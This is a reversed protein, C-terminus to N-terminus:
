NVHFHIETCPGYYRRCDSYNSFIDAEYLKKLTLSTTQCPMQCSSGTGQSWAILIANYAQKSSSEQHTGTSCTLYQDGPNRFVILDHKAVNCVYGGPQDELFTTFFSYKLFFVKKVSLLRSIMMNSFYIFINSSLLVLNRGM